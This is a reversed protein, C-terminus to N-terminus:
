VPLKGQTVGVVHDHFPFLKWIDVDIIIQDCKKRYNKLFLQM